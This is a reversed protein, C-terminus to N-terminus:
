RILRWKQESVLLARVDCRTKKYNLSNLLYIFDKITYLTPWLGFRLCKHSGSPPVSLRSLDTPKQLADAYSARWLATSARTFGDMQRDTVHQCQTLIVRAVIMRDENYSLGM